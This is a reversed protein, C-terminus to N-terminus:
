FRAERRCRKASNLFPKSQITEILRIWTARAILARGVAPGWWPHWWTLGFPAAAACLLPAPVMARQQLADHCCGQTAGSYYSCGSPLAMHRARLEIKPAVTACALGAAAGETPDCQLLDSL